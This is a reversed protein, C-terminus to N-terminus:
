KKIAVIARASTTTVAISSKKPPRGTIIRVVAGGISKNFFINLFPQFISVGMTTVMMVCPFVVSTNVTTFVYPAIFNFLVANGGMFLSVVFGQLLLVM